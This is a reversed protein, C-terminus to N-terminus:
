MEREIHVEQKERNRVKRGEDKVRMDSSVM